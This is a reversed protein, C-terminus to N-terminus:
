CDNVRAKKLRVSAILGNKRRRNSVELRGGMQSIIKRAIPLGMGMHGTKTSFLPTFIKGMLERKVGPGNDMVSIVVHEAEPGPTRMSLLLEPNELGGVAELANEVLHSLASKLGARDILISGPDPEAARILDLRLGETRKEVWATFNQWFSAAPAAQLRGAGTKSYVKISNLVRHQKGVQELARELFDNRKAGDFGEGNRLLVELTMKLSNVSNGLEHSLIAFSLDLSEILELSNSGANEM